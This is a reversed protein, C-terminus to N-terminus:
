VAPLTYLNCSLLLVLNLKTACRKYFMTDIIQVPIPYLLSLVSSASSYIIISNTNVVYNEFKNLSELERIIFTMFYPILIEMVAEGVMVIPCLISPVKYERLSKFLTKM